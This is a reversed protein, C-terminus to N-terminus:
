AILENAEGNFIDDLCLHLLLISLILGLYVSAFLNYINIEISNFLCHKLFTFHHYLNAFSLFITFSPTGLVSTVREM